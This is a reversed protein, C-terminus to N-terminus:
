QSSGFNVTHPNMLVLCDFYRSFSVNKKWLLCFNPSWKVTQTSFKRGLTHVRCFTTAMFRTFTSIYLKQNTEHGGIVVHNFSWLSNHTPSEWLLYNPPSSISKFKRFSRVLGRSELAMTLLRKLLHDGQWTQHDYLSLCHLFIPKLKDLSRALGHLWLTM